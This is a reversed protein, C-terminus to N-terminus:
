PQPPPPPPPPHHLLQHLLCHPLPHPITDAQEQEGGGEGWGGGTCHHLQAPIGDNELQVMAPHQIRCGPPGERTRPWFVLPIRLWGIEGVQRGCGGRLTRCGRHQCRGVPHCQGRPHGAVAPPSGLVKLRPRPLRQCPQRRVGVDMRPCVSGSLLRLQLSSGGKNLCSPVKM